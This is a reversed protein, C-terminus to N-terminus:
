GGNSAEPPQKKAEQAARFANGAQTYAEWLAQKEPALAVRIRANKERSDIVQIISLALEKAAEIPMFLFTEDVTKKEDFVPGFSSPEINPATSRANLVCTFNQISFTFNNMYISNHGM